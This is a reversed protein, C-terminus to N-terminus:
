KKEGLTGYVTNEILWKLDDDSIEMKNSISKWKSLMKRYQGLTNSHTNYSGYSNIKKLEDYRDLKFIFFLTYKLHKVEENGDFGPFYIQKDKYEPSKERSAVAFYLGRYMDLIDLVERLLNEPIDESIVQILDNYHLTYGEELIERHQSYTEAEEPYLKELIKYQNILILRQELTPQLDMKLEKNSM